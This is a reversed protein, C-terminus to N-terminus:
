KQTHRNFWETIETLRRVRHLPKGSRSLEHNEGHFICMRTEISRVALAQMMQMGEPLPCRYDEDSHIFLTPTKVQDAYKLPSHRWLKETDNYLDPAACQDPGFYFGIDSIFSMSVWNSISRQSAAACFRDTHTIIWNTMFGGYSGGTVCMRTVDINPCVKLCADTFDMLNQYDIFGYKGRIDAYADGRGDSGRVNCFFVVYGASAWLQMEHFFTETYICRPGGHVDLIAPYQKDPDYDKPLLIWGHGEVPVSSGDDLQEVSSYDVRVPEAVYRGTLMEDNLKTLRRVNQGDADMAYIDFPRNWPAYSFYVTSGAAKGCDLFSVEGPKDFLPVFHDPDTFAYIASRDEITVVTILRDGSVCSENGGGLGTDSCASNYLSFEPKALPTIVGDHYECFRGSENLGYEKMDSAFLCLSGKWFFLDGIMLDDGDYLTSLANVSPDYCYLRSTLSMRRERTSGTYYVVGGEVIFNELSFDPSTVRRIEPDGEADKRVLFLGTRQGNIFGAGNHWYPVEDVVQYDAEHGEKKKDAKKKRTEADDLYADPDATDFSASVAYFGPEIQKMDSISIPLKMYPMAEGSRIDLCFLETGEAKDPDPTRSLLLHTDDTWLVISASLTATLQRVSDNEALWIDRRYSNKDMDAYAVQFAAATGSPNVTLNEPARYKTIDSIEIKKLEM